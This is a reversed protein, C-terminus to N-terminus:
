ADQEQEGGGAVVEPEREERRADPLRQVHREVEGVAHQHHMHREAHHLLVAADEDREQEASRERRDRQQMERGGPALALGRLCCSPQSATPGGSEIGSLAARMTAAGSPSRM